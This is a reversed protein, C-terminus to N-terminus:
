LIKMVIRNHIQWYRICNDYILKVMTKLFVKYCFSKKGTSHLGYELDGGFGRDCGLFPDM